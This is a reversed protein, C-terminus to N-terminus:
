SQFGEALLSAHATSTRLKVKSRLIVHGGCVLLSSSLWILPPSITSTSQFVPRRLEIDDRPADGDDKDPARTGNCDGPGVPLLNAREAVVRAESSM